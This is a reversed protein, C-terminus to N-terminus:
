KQLKALEALVMKSHGEANVNEYRRAIRGQPDIIFTDRRSINYLKYQPYSTLAGYAKTTAATSDSLVPFPLNNEEAFGKKSDVADVSVGLVAANARRFAFIDDRIECAQTTCGPTGDKPYFYLVVWKGRYDALSRWEGTQDQLRFAPAAQGAEPASPAAPAAFAAPGALALLAVIALAFLGSATVTRASITKAFRDM